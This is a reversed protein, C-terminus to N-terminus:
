LGVQRANKALATAPGSTPVKKACRPRATCGACPRQMSRRCACARATVTGCLAICPTASSPAPSLTSLQLSRAAAHMARAAEAAEVYSNRLRARPAAACAPLHLVNSVSRWSLLWLRCSSIPGRAASCAALSAIAPQARAPPVAHATGGAPVCASSAPLSAAHRVRRSASSARSRAPPACARAACQAATDAVTCSRHRM